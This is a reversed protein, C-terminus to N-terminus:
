QRNGWEERGLYMFRSLMARIWVWNKDWIGTVL